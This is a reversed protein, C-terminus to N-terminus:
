KPLNLKSNPSNENLLLLFEDAQVKSNDILPTPRTGIFGMHGVIVEPQDTKKMVQITQDFGM